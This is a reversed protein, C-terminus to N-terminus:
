QLKQDLQNLFQQSDFNNAVNILVSWITYAEHYKFSMNFKKKDEKNIHQIRMRKLVDNIISLISKKAKDDIAPLNEYENKFWELLNCVAALQYPTIKELKVKM